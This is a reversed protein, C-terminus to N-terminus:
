AAVGEGQRELARAVIRRITSSLTRDDAEAIRELEVRLKIPLRVSVQESKEMAYVQVTAGSRAAVHPAGSKAAVCRSAHCPFSDRSFRRCNTQSCWGPFEHRFDLLHRQKQSCVAGNGSCVARIEYPFGLPSIQPHPDIRGGREIKGGRRHPDADILSPRSPLPGRSRSSQVALASAHAPEAVRDRVDAPHGQHMTV